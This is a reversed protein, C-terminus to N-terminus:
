MDWWAQSRRPIRWSSSSLTAPNIDPNGEQVRQRWSGVESPYVKWFPAPTRMSAEKWAVYRLPLFQQGSWLFFSSSTDRIRCSAVVRWVYWFLSFGMQPVCAAADSLWKPSVRAGLAESCGALVKRQQARGARLRRVSRDRQYPQQRYECWFGWIDM